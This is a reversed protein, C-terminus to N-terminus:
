ACPGSGRRPAGWFEKFTRPLDFSPFFGTSKSAIRTFSLLVYARESPSFRKYFSEDRACVEDSPDLVSVLAEALDPVDPWERGLMGTLFGPIFYYLMEDSILYISGSVMEDLNLAVSHWSRGEFFTLEDKYPESEHVPVADPETRFAEAAESLVEDSIDTM